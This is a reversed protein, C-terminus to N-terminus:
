QVKLARSTARGGPGELTLFYIGSAVPAGSESRGDWTLLGDVAVPLTRVNRGSADRIRVVGGKGGAVALQAEGGFPNPFVALRVAPAAAQPGAAPISVSFPALVQRSGNTAVAVLRYWVESGAILRSDEDVFHYEPGGTLLETTRLTFDREGPLQREVEFGAHNAEWTTAFRLEVQGPLAAVTLRALLVPTLQDALYVGDGNTCAFIRLYGRATDAHVFSVDLNVLGSTWPTWVETPEGAQRSVGSASAVFRHSRYIALSRLDLDSLGNNRETWIGSTLEFVGGGTAAFLRGDGDFALDRVDLNGLQNSHSAWEQGDDSSRFVGGSTGAYILGPVQPDIALARVDPSTLGMIRPSFATGGNSSYFVGATTAAWLLSSDALAPRQALDQIIGTSLGTTHWLEGGAANRRWVGLTTGAYRLTPTAIRLARVTSPLSSESYEEWSMGGDLSRYAGGPERFNGSAGLVLEDALGPFTAIGRCRMVVMGRDSRSFLEGDASRFLGGRSTNDGASGAFIDGGAAFLVRVDHAPPNGAALAWTAGSNTSRFVGSTMSMGSTQTGALVLNPNEPDILLDAVRTNTLGTVMLVWNEGGDSSRYVGSEEPITTTTGVYLFTGDPRRALAVAKLNTLGQNRESWNLGADTTLFVGGHTAAYLSDGGAPFFDHVEAGPLGNSRTEWSGGGDTSVFVGSSQTGAWLVGQADAVLSFVVIDGMGSNAATFSVGGDTSRYVGAGYTAALITGGSEVVLAGIDPVPVGAGGRSWNAGGDSSRFFCGFGGAFINAPAGPQSALALISAGDPGLPRWDSLQALAPSVLSALTNLAWILGVISPALARRKM